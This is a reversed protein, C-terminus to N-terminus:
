LEIGHVGELIQQLLSYVCNVGNRKNKRNKKFSFRNWLGLTNLSQIIM